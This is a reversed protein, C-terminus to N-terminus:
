TYCDPKIMAFTRESAAEFKKKTFLDGYDVLKLQRSHVTVISGLFLEKATVGPCGMRKMFQRRNKLDYMEATSDKPYYTLLYERILAAQKDYWETKFVFREEKVISMDSAQFAAHTQSLNSM